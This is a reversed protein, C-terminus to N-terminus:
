SNWHKEVLRVIENNDIENMCRFHKKPCQKFGIKTCPRCKINKLEVIDSLEKKVYPYMGFEPVTNGWISIIPKQFAAAIHMLGTDHSVIVRAQKVISASQNLNYKGCSNYVKRNKCISMIKDADTSDEKGGLIVIPYNLKSIIESIKEAPMKKTFHKAGIVFGVYGNQVFDPLMNIEVEDQKPIFYDLGNGDNEVEFLKVPEFYRDVIHKNPMKNIKFNVLLWKEINLKPFTLSLIGIQSKIRKTRINNHLDIIYDYREEKIENITDSFKEKLTLVKDVNPNSLLIGSFASKTLFHIESEAVQKKLCRVVPTTLVIDGISSFRIILFKVM